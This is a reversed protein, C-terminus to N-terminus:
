IQTQALIDETMEELQWAEKEQEVRIGIEVTM